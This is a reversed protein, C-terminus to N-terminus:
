SGASGPKTSWVYLIKQLEQVTLKITYPRTWWNSKRWVSDSASHNIITIGPGLVQHFNLSARRQHYPSTVLIITHAGLRHIIPAADAANQATTTSQEEILIASAPVGASMADRRMTAANSPGNPDAAAGSFLLKPAYGQKYVRVAENTRQSTEGGSIAVILDAHRLKDQPSLFLGIGIIALAVVVGMVGLGIAVKNIFRM